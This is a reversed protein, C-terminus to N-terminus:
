ETWVKLLLYGLKGAGPDMHHATKRPIVVLDGPGIAYRRAGSVGTGRIEGPGELKAEQITGGLEAAATGTKLFYIDVCGEHAEWPGSRGKYIVYNMTFNRAYHIPQNRDFNAFTAAIEAAPLVAPMTTPSPRAGERGAGAKAEAVLVAIYELRGASAELKHKKSRGAHIVDGPGIEHRRGDLTLVGAGRRVVILEDADHWEEAGAAASLRISYSPRELIAEPATIKALRADIEASKMVDRIEGRAAQAALAAAMAAAM